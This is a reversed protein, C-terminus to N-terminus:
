KFYLRAETSPAGNRGMTKRSDERGTSAMRLARAIERMTKRKELELDM